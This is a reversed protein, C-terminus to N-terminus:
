LFGLLASVSILRFVDELGQRAKVWGSEARSPIYVTDGARIVPLLSFDGTKSFELLDFTRAQDKCCSLNVVTIKQPYGESDIGGAEALLDLLTMEDNFRYRGPKSVSGLVRVTREKKESLWNRNKEPIYISDGPVVKPLISEDGTEFYLALDLKSVSAHKGNRHSIRVNSIDAQESPGDAAALIDLFHMSPDFRYRGPAVVQGFVYISDESSQRVWQSKNDSPDDPLQPVMITTGAVIRPMQQNNIEGNLYANLNFNVSRTTGGADSFLVTIKAMDANPKPGGAHALLDMLNMEDAWEFRGPRNVEGMVKVAQNPSVKTWSKENLDTKEPVFIADGAMIRPLQASRGETFSQLDFREVAGSSRIIRIQRTEAFRSPGGANALVDLFGAAQNGEYAGPKFVEGMVYVTNAGAKIEEEQKPVFITTGATLSLLLDNDGTDLYRKLNFLKPEGDIIVRIQEVSAYRTVGGARMLMDVLNASSKYSFSGPNYVEGFVKVATRDEAADGNDNLSNPDFDVAVNGIKPSAPVFLVDLSHLRPLAALDGSDLYQKYNFVQPQSFSARRLQLRDLQAGARLGGAAQIAMQVGAGEALVVEGPKDVFGLVSIRIRREELLVRLGALDRYANSLERKIKQQMQAETFGSVMIPGVEPLILRGNRDVEFRKDLSTEGPLVIRVVDGPQVQPNAANAEFMMFMNIVLGILMWAPLPIKSIKM